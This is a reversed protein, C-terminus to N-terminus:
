RKRNKEMLDKLRKQEEELLKPDNKLMRANRERIRKLEEEAERRAEEQKKRDQLVLHVHEGPKAQGSSELVKGEAQQRAKEIRSREEDEQRARQKANKDAERRLEEQRKREEIEEPPLYEEGKCLADYLDDMSFETFRYEGYTFLTLAAATKHDYGLSLYYNYLQERGKKKITQEITKM